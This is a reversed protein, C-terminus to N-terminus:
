KCTATPITFDIHVSYLLQQIFRLLPGGALSGKRMPSEQLNNRGCANFNRLAEELFRSLQSLTVRYLHPYTGEAM